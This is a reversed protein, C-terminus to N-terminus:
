LSTNSWSWSPKPSKKNQVNVKSTKTNWNILDLKYKITEKRTATCKNIKNSCTKSEEINKPCTTYFCKM